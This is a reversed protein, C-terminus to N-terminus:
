PPIGQELETNRWAAVVTGCVRAGDKEVLLHSESIQPRGQFLADSYGSLGPGARALEFAYYIAGTKESADCDTSLLEFVVGSIAGPVPNKLYIYLDIKRENEALEVWWVALRELDLVTEDALWMLARRGGAKGIAEELTEFAHISGIGATQIAGTVAAKRIEDVKQEYSIDELALPSLGLKRAAPDHAIPAAGVWVAFFMLGFTILAPVLQYINSAAAKGRM